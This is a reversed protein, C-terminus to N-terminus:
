NDRMLLKGDEYKYYLRVSSDIDEPEESFLQSCEFESKFSILKDFDLCDSVDYFLVKKGKIVTGFIYNECSFPETPYFIIACEQEQPISEILVDELYVLVFEKNPNEILLSDSKEIFNYLKLEFDKNIFDIKNIENINIEKKCSYICLILIILSIVKELRLEIM